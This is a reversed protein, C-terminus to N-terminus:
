QSISLFWMGNSNYIIHTHRKVLQSATASLSGTYSLTRQELEVTYEMQIEGILVLYPYISNNTRAPLHNDRENYLYFFSCVHQLTYPPDKKTTIKPHAALKYHNSPM